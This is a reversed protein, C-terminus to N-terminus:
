FGCFFCFFDTFKANSWKILENGFNICYDIHNALLPVSELVIITDPKNPFM